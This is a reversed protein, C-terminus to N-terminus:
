AVKQYHPVSKGPKECSALVPDSMTQIIEVEHPSMFDDLFQILWNQEKESHRLDVEALLSIADVEARKTEARVFYDAANVHGSYFTRGRYTPLHIQRERISQAITPVLKPTLFGYVIGLPLTLGTASYRHGGIHTCQWAEIDAEQKFAQYVPLGFKSCCRDHTGNTCIAVINEDVPQHETEGNIIASLDLAILDDASGIAFKYLKSDSPQTVALYVTGSGFPHDPSLQNERKIFFPRFGAIAAKQADLWNNVEIPLDNNGLAKNRWPNTYEILLAVSFQASTGYLTAGNTQALQSCFDM